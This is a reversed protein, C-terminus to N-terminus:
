PTLTCYAGETSLETHSVGPLPGERPPCRRGPARGGYVVSPPCPVNCTDTLQCFQTTIGGEVAMGSDWSHVQSSEARPTSVYVSVTPLAWCVSGHVTQRQSARRVPLLREM